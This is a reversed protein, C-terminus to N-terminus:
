TAMRLNARCAPASSSGLRLYAKMLPNRGSTLFSTTKWFGVVIRSATFTACRDSCAVLIPLQSFSVDATSFAIVLNAM